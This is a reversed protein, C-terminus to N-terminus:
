EKPIYILFQTKGDPKDIKKWLELQKVSENVVPNSISVIYLNNNPFKEKNWDVNKIWYKGIRNSEDDRNIMEWASFAGWYGFYHRPLGSYQGFEGFRPEVVITEYKDIMPRIELFAQKYGFQYNDGTIKPFHIYYAIAFYVFNIGILLTLLWFCKKNKEFVVQMGIAMILITPAIFPLNRVEAVPGTLAPVVPSLLWWGLLFRSKNKQIKRLNILGIILLPLSALLFWGFQFVENKPFLEMGKTFMSDLGFHDAYNYVPEVAVHAIKKLLCDQSNNWYNEINATRFWIQSSARNFPDNMQVMVFDYFIPLAVLVTIIWLPIWKRFSIKEKWYWYSLLLLLPVLGWQTHYGWISLGFFLGSLILKNNESKRIYLFLFYIALLLVVTALNSEYAMRSVFISKPNLALLFAAMIGLKDGGLERGVMAILFVALSGVFASLFRVGYENNGFLYNFPVNLYIYLPSKYVRHSMFSLPMVKRHEDMGTMRISYSDWAISIEDNGIHVPNKDLNIIRFISGVLSILVVWLYFIKKM